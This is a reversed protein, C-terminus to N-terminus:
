EGLIEELYGQSPLHQQIYESNEEYRKEMVELAYKLSHTQLIKDKDYIVSKAIHIMRFVMDDVKEAPVITTLTLVTGNFHIYYQDNVRKLKLSYFHNQNKASALYGSYNVSQQNKDVRVTYDIEVEKKEETKDNKSLEPTKKDKILSHLSEETYHKFEIEKEDEELDTYYESIIIASPTFNMVIKFGDVAFVNSLENSKVIGMDEPLYYRYTPKNHNTAAIAKSQTAEKLITNVEDEVQKPSNASCAGLLCVIILLYWKKM